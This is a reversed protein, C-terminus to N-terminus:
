KKRRTEKTIVPAKTMSIFAAIFMVAFILLLTFKWSLDRILFASLFFGVIAVLMFSAHLPAIKWVM